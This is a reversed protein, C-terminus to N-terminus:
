IKANTEKLAPTQVNRGTMNNAVNKLDTSTPTYPYKAFFIKRAIISEHVRENYAINGLFQFQSYFHRNCVKEIKNGLTEDIHKRYQNLILKFKLKRLEKQLLKARAPDSRMVSDVIDLPSRVVGNDAEDEVEKIATSFAHRKLIHKLKRLYVAKIFQVTNQISTPEPTFVSLGQHSALFFDLTNYTTGAGLDLVVYDAPLKWIARIIKLKQSYFLNGVELSCGVSSIIYLNPITTPVVTLSLNKVSKNLFNNLGTKLNNLGMMTHLNPAGLNLDVLVVKKRQKALMVGLNASIFSKGSGGKGGGVAFIQTM